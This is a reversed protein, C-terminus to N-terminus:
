AHPLNLQWTVGFRDQVWTFRQSFGYDGLPMLEFGGDVLAAHVAELEADDTLDLWLSIAPTMTFEHPHANDSLLLRTGAIRIEAQLVHGPTGMAPDTIETIHVVETGPVAAAYLDIADRARGCQDGIFMLATAASVM